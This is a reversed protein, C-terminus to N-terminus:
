GDRSDREPAANENTADDDKADMSSEPSSEPSSKVREDETDGDVLAPSPNDKLEEIPDSMEDEDDDFLGIVAEGREEQVKAEEETRAVNVTIEVEIEPHLAVRVPHIGLMKIARDLRVQRREVKGVKETIGEAIDRATVSGYLQGRESSQRIVVIHLNEFADATAAIQERSRANEAELKERNDEVQSRNKPTARLAKGRPLLFNRAYGDRVRVVDGLNGLSSIRELLIIEM